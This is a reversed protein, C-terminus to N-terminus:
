FGCGSLSFRRKIKLSHHRALKGTINVMQLSHEGICPYRLCSVTHLLRFALRPVYTRGQWAFDKKVECYILFYSGCMSGTVKRVVDFVRRGCVNGMQWPMLGQCALCHMGKTIEAALWTYKSWWSSYWFGWRQKDETSCSIYSNDFLNLLDVEKKAYLLFDNHFLLEM